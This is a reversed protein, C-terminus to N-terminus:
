PLLKSALGPRARYGALRVPIEASYGLDGQAKQLNNAVKGVMKAIWRDSVMGGLAKRMGKHTSHGLDKALDKISQGAGGEKLNQRINKALNGLKSHGSSTSKISADDDFTSFTSAPTLTPSTPTTVPPTDLGTAVYDFEKEIEIIKTAKVLAATFDLLSQDFSAPLSAHASVRIATEDKRARDLQIEGQKAKPEGDADEIKIEYSQEDETSLKDPVVHEHHPILFAPIFCTADAGALRIVRELIGQEPVMRSAVVDDAKLYATIEYSSSLPVQAHSSIDGLQLCFNADALWSKVRTELRRIDASDTSYHKFVKAQLMAATFRGSAAVNISKISIRHFYAVTTLLLRYLFPLRQIFNRVRPPALNQLTTVRVSRAPPHAISPLTHLEACMAARVDKDNELETFGEGAAAKARVQAKAQYSTSTTRIEKLMALYQAEAKEDDASLTKVSKFGATATSDKMWSVGTLSTRLKPRDKFGEAGTTAARLLATEGFVPMADDAHDGESDLDGFFLEPKGGKVSGYVDSVEVRRFLDIHVRDVCAAFEIDDGIKIGLEIGHAVLTLTSLSITVGRVVFLGDVDTDIELAPLNFLAIKDRTFHLEKLVRRLNKRAAESVVKFQLLCTIGIIPYCLVTFVTWFLWSTSCVAYALNFTALLTWIPIDPFIRCGLGYGYLVLLSEIAAGSVLWRRAWQTAAILVVAVSTWVMPTALGGPTQQEIVTVTAGSADHPNEAGLIAM